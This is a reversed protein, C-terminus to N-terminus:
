SGQSPPFVNPVITVEITSLRAPDYPLVVDKLSGETDYLNGRSVFHGGGRNDELGRTIIEPAEDEDAMKEACDLYYVADGLQIKLQHGSLINFKDISDITAFTILQLPTKLPVERSDSYTYEVTPEGLPSEFPMPLDPFCVEDEDPVPKFSQGVEAIIPQEPVGTNRRETV